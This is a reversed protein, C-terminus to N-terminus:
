ATAKKMIADAERLMNRYHADPKAERPFSSGNWAM